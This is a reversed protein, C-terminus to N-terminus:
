GSRGDVKVEKMKLEMRVETRRIEALREGSGRKLDLDDEWRLRAAMWLTHRTRRSTRTTRNQRQGGRGQM